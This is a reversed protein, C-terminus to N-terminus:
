FISAAIPFVSRVQPDHRQAQAPNQPDRLPDVRMLSIEGRAQRDASPKGIRRRDWFKSIRWDDECVTMVEIDGPRVGGFHVNDLVLDNLQQLRYTETHM